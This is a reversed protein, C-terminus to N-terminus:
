TVTFSAAATKGKLSGLTPTAELRYRGKALAHGGIKSPFPISVPGNLDAHTFSGITAHHGQELEVVKFRTTAAV